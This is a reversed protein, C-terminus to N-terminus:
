QSTAAIAKAEQLERELRTVKGELRKTKARIEKRKLSLNSFKTQVESLKANTGNLEEELEQVRATLCNREAASAFLNNSSDVFRM